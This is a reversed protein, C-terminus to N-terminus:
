MPDTPGVSGDDHADEIVGKGKARDYIIVVSGVSNINAPSAFSPPKAGADGTFTFAMRAPDPPPIPISPTICSSASAVLALGLLALRVSRMFGVGPFLLRRDLDLM